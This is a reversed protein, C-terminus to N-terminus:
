HKFFKRQTIFGAEQMKQQKEQIYDDWFGDDNDYYDVPMLNGNIQEDTLPAEDAGAYEKLPFDTLCTEIEPEVAYSEISMEKEYLARRENDRDVNEVGHVVKELLSMKAESDAGDALLQEIVSGSGQDDGDEDNDSGLDEKHFEEFKLENLMQKGLNVDLRIKTAKSVEVIVDKLRGEVPRLYSCIMNMALEKQRIDMHPKHYEFAYLVNRVM